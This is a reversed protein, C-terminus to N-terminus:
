NIGLVTKTSSLIKSDFVNFGKKEKLYIKINNQLELVKNRNQIAHSAALRKYILKGQKDAEDGSIEVSLYKEIDGERNGTILWNWFSHDRDSDLSHKEDLKNLQILIRGGKYTLYQKGHSLASAIPIGFDHWQIILKFFVWNYEESKKDNKYLLGGYRLVTFIRKL